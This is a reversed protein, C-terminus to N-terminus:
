WGWAFPAIWSQWWTINCYRSIYTPLSSIHSSHKSSAVKEYFVLRWSLMLNVGKSIKNPFGPRNGKSPASVERMYRNCLPSLLENLLFVFVLGHYSLEKPISFYSINRGVNLHVLTWPSLNKIKILPYFAGYILLGIHYVYM